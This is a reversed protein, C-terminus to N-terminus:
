TLVDGGLTQPGLGYLLGPVKNAAIRIVGEGPPFGLAAAAADDVPGGVLADGTETDFILTECAEGVECTRRVRILAM